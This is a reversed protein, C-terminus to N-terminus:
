QAERSLTEFDRNFQELEEEYAKITDEAIIMSARYMSERAQWRLQLRMYVIPNSSINGVMAEYASDVILKIRAMHEKWPESKYMQAFESLAIEPTDSM